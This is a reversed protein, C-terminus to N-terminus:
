SANLSRELASNEWLFANRPTLIGDVMQAQYLHPIMEYGFAYKQQQYKKRSITRKRATRKKTNRKQIRKTKKYSYKKM